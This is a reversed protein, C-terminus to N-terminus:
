TNGRAGAREPSRDFFFGDAARLHHPRSTAAPVLPAAQLNQGHHRCTLTAALGTRSSSPEAAIASASPSRARCWNPPSSPTAAWHLLRRHWGAHQTIQTCGASAEEEAASLRVPARASRRSLMKSGLDGPASRVSSPVMYARFRVPSRIRGQRLTRTVALPGRPPMM